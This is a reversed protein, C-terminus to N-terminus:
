RPVRWGIGFAPYAAGLRAASLVIPADFSLVFPGLLHEFGIGIMPTFRVNVFETASLVQFFVYPRTPSIHRALPYGAARATLQAIPSGIIGQDGAGLGALAAAGLYGNLVRYEAGVSAGGGLRTSVLLGTIDREPSGAPVGDRRMADLVDRNVRDAAFGSLFVDYAAATVMTIAGLIELTGGRQKAASIGLATAASLIVATRPEGAILHGVRISAIQTDAHTLGGFFTDSDRNVSGLYVAQTVTVIGSTIMPTLSSRLHLRVAASNEDLVLRRSLDTRVSPEIEIIENLSLYADHRSTIAYRGAPLARLDITGFGVPEDNLFVEADSPWMTLRLDGHMPSEIPAVPPPLEAVDPDPLSFVVVASGNPPVTITEEILVEEGFRGPRRVEVRRTGSLIREREIDTGIRTGDVYVTYSGDAGRNEVVLTGFALQEGSFERALELVVEDGVDFIDFVSAADASRHLVAADRGRQWVFLEIRFRGATESVVGYVAYDFRERSLYQAARELDHHPTLFAVRTVDYAGLLEMVLTTTRSLTAALARARAEDAPAEIDIVAVRSGAAAAASENVQAFVEGGTALVVVACAARALSEVFRVASRFR